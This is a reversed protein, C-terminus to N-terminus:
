SLSSIHNRERMFLFLPCAFAFAILFTGVFYFWLHKMKRRRGEVMMWIFVPTAGILFDTTISSSLPTAMGDALFRRVSFPEDGYLIFQLNFYWPVVLGAIAFILYIWMLPTWKKM